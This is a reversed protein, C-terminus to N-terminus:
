SDSALFEICIHGESGAVPFLTRYRSKSKLEGSDWHANTSSRYNFALTKLENSSSVIKALTSGDPHGHRGNTSIAYVEAAVSRLLERTTNKRAGHHSLKFVDVKSPFGDNESRDNVAKTLDNPHCDGTLLMKIGFAEVLFCLSSGNPRSSDNEDVTGSLEAIDIEHTGLGERGKSPESEKALAEAMAKEWVTVMSGLKARTPTLVTLLFHSVEFTTDTLDSHIPGGSTEPNWPIGAEMIARSLEDAQATGFSESGATQRQAADAQSYGNFWIRSIEFSRDADGLMSLVGGIHDADIHTVVLLDITRRDGLLKSLVTGWKAYTHGRGGDILM